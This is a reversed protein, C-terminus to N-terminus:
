SRKKRYHAKKRDIDEGSGTKRGTIEWQSEGYSSGSRHWSVLRFNKDRDNYLLVCYFIGPRMQFIKKMVLPDAVCVPTQTPMRGRDRLM